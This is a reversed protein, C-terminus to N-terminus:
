FDNLLVAVIREKFINEYLVHMPDPFAIRISDLEPFSMVVSDEKITWINSGGYIKNEYIDRLEKTTTYDPPNDNFSKFTLKNINKEKGQKCYLCPYKSAPINFEFFSALAPADRVISVLNM